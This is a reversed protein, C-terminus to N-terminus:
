IAWTFSSQLLAEPTLIANNILTVISGALTLPFTLTFADRVAAVHRQGNIKRCGSCANSWKEQMVNMFAM